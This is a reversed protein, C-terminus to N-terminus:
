ADAGPAYEASGNAVLSAAHDAQIEIEQGNTLSRIVAKPRAVVRGFSEDIANVEAAGRQIARGDIDTVPHGEVDVPSAEAIGDQFDTRLGLKAWETVWSRLLLSAGYRQRAADAAAQAVVYATAASGIVPEAAAEIAPLERRVAAVLAADTRRVEAALVKLAGLVKPRKRQAEELKSPVDLPDTGATMAAAGASEDQALAAVEWSSDILAAHESEFEVFKDYATDRADLLKHLAKPLFQRSPLSTTDAYIDTM